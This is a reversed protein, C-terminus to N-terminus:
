SAVCQHGEAPSNRSGAACAASLDTVLGGFGLILAALAVAVALEAAVHVGPELVARRPDTPDYAVQVRRGVPYAHLRRQGPGTFRLALDDGFFAREARYSEGGVDYRYRIVTRRMPEGDDHYGEVRLETSMIEGEARPWARSARARRLDRWGRWLMAAGFAMVFLHTLQSDIVDTM